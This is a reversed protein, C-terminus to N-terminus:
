RRGSGANVPIPGITRAVLGGQSTSAQPVSCAGSFSVVAKGDVAVKDRSIYARLPGKLTLFQNTQYHCVRLESNALIDVQTQDAIIDLAEVLTPKGQSFAIVRGSVDEVFAVEFDAKIAERAAYVPGAYAPGSTMAAAIASLFAVSAIVKTTFQLRM